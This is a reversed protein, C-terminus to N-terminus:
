RETRILSGILAGAAAAPVAIVVVARGVEDAGCETDPDGCFQTLFVTTAAVGALGGILLGTWTHTRTDPKETRPILTDWAWRPQGAGWTPSSEYHWAAFPPQAAQALLDAPMGLGFVPLLSGALPLLYHRV